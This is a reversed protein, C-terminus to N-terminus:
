RPQGTAQFLCMAEKGKRNLHMKEATLLRFTPKTSHTQHKLLLSFLAFPIIKRGWKNGDQQTSPFYGSEHKCLWGSRLRSKVSSEGDRPILEPLAWCKCDAFINWWCVHWRFDAVTYALLHVVDALVGLSIYSSLSLVLVATHLPFMVCNTVTSSCSSPFPSRSIGCLDCETQQPFYVWKSM